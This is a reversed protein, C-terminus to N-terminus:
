NVGGIPQLDRTLRQSRVTTSTWPNVRAFSGREQWWVALFENGLDSLKLDFARNIQKAALNVPEEPKVVKISSEGSESIRTAYIANSGFVSLAIFDNGSWILSPYFGINGADVRTVTGNADVFAAARQAYCKVPETWIVLARSGNSAIEPPRTRDLAEETLDITTEGASVRVRHSSQEIWATFPSASVEHSRIPAVVSLPLLRGDLSGAIKGSDPVCRDLERWALLMGQASPVAHPHDKRREDIGLHQPTQGLHFTFIEKASEYTIFYRRGDWVVRPDRITANATALLTQTGLENGEADLQMAYLSTDRTWVVLFSRGDSAISLSHAAGSAFSTEEHVIDGGYSLVTRRLGAATPWVIVFREDNAALKPQAPRASYSGTRLVNGRPDLLAYTGEGSALVARDGRAALSENYVGHVIHETGAVAGESDLAIIGTNQGTRYALLYGDYTAALDIAYPMGEFRAATRVEGRADIHNVAVQTGEARYVVVIGGGDSAAHFDNVMFEPSLAFLLPLLLSM